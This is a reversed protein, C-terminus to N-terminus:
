PSDEEALLLYIKRRAETLIERTRDLQAPRAAQAVQMVAAGLQHIQERFGILTERPDGEFLAWPPVDDKRSNAYVKGEETLSYVKKGEQLFASILGEDELAALHPYVSGPSPRWAGGTREELVRMIEYGHRPEESLLSLIGFRVDGRGVRPGGGTFEGRFGGFGPGM